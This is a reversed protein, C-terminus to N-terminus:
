EFCPNAAFAARVCLNWVANEDSRLEAAMQLPMPPTAYCMEPKTKHYSQGGPSPFICREGNYSTANGRDSGPLAVAVSFFGEASSHLIV